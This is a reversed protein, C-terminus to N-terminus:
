ASIESAVQKLCKLFKTLSPTPSFDTRTVYGIMRMPTKLDIPLEKVLGLKEELYIQRKSVLAIRESEMLLSRVVILSDTEIFRTPFPLKNKAFLRELQVRMPVNPNPVVWNSNQLDALTLIKRKLLHHSSRVVLVSSEDFLKYATIEDQLVSARITGVLLDIDGDGLKQIQSEFTGEVISIQVDPNSTLFREVTVPILQVRALPLTGIRIRGKGSGKLNALEESAKSIESYAIKSRLVVIDGEATAIMGRSSREFLNFGLRQELTRLSRNVAPQSIGMKIAALSVSQNEATHIVADLERNTSFRSLHNLSQSNKKLRKSKALDKEARRLHSLARDIRKLLIEGSETLLMRKNSRSFLQVEFEQELSKISRTVAPQSLNLSDAARSVSELKSVEHM